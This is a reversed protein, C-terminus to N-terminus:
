KLVIMKRTSAFDDTVLRYFYIGSPVRRGDDDLGNWTVAHGAKADFKANALTKVLRGAVDFVRLEVQGAHALDFRIVTTPNFPNPLNQFLATVRPSQALKWALAHERGGNGILLVKM